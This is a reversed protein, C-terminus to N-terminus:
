AMAKVLKDSYTNGQDLKSIMDDMKNTMLEMLEAIMEDTRTSSISQSVSNSSNSVVSSLEDKDPKEIKIKSSPDPLPVVAERGHLTVPYGGTTGDFVGGLKAQEFHVDDGRVTQFLGQKNLAAVAGTNAYNQIDVALGNEHRSSGPQGIPRGEATRGTRGKAVSDDWMAKQEAPSRYASNIQLKRGTLSNFDAAAALVKSQLSQDLSKFSSESGSPGVFSLLNEGGEIQPMGQSGRGGGVTPSNVSKITAPAATPVSVAGGGPKNQAYPNYTTGDARKMNSQLKLAESAKDISSGTKVDTKAGPKDGAFKDVANSFKIAGLDFTKIGALLDKDSAISDKQQKIMEQNYKATLKDSAEKRTAIEEELKFFEESGQSIGRKKAEELAMERNIQLNGINGYKEGTSGLGVGTRAFQGAQGEYSGVIESRFLSARSFNTGTGSMVANLTKGLSQMAQVAEPTGAAGGSAAFDVIGKSLKPDIKAALTAADEARQLLALRAEDKNARAEMKAAQLQENALVLARSDEQDKRTQGLLTATKDLEDLYTAAGRALEAQTKNQLNGLKAQIAMYKETSAAQEEQSIGLNRFHLGYQETMAGTAAAFKEVGNVANTGFLSMEHQSNKLVGAFKDIDKIAFGAKHAEDALATMGGAGTMGANGVENFSKALMDQLQSQQDLRQKAAELGQEAQKEEMARKGFWWAGVATLVGLLIGVPGTIGMVATGTVRAAVALAGLGLTLIGLQKSFGLSQDFEQRRRAAEQGLQKSQIMNAKQMGDVGLAVANNYELQNHFAQDIQQIYQDFALTLMQSGMQLGTFALSLAGAGLATGGFKETAAQHATALIGSASSIQGFTQNIKAGQHKTSDAEEQKRKNLRQQAEIAANQERTLGQISEYNAKAQRLADQSATEQLKKTKLEEQQAKSLKDYGAVNEKLQKEIEEQIDIEQRLQKNREAINLGFKSLQRDAKQQTDDAESLARSHADLRSGFGSFHETLKELEARLADVNIDAM